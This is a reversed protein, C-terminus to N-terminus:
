RLCALVACFDETRLASSFSTASAEPSIGTESGGSIALAFARISTFSSSGEPAVLAIVSRALAIRSACASELGASGGAATTAGAGAAGAM